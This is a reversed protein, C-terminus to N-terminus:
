TTQPVEKKSLMTARFKFPTLGTFKRFSKIFHAQDYYGSLYAVETLSYDKELLNFASQLKVIEAFKKPGIGVKEFFLRKLTRESVYYKKALDLIEINGGHDYIEAVCEGAIALHSPHRVMLKSILFNEIIRIRTPNDGCDIFQSNYYKWDQFIDEIMVSYETIESVPFPLFAAATHPYFVVGIMGSGKISLISEGLLKQGYIGAPAQYTNEKKSFFPCGYHFLMQIKGLPYVFEEHDALDNELWWIEQIYPALHVKPKQSKLKM